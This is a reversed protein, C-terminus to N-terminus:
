IGTQKKRERDIRRQWASKWNVGPVGPAFLEDFIDVFLDAIRENRLIKKFAPNAQENSEIVFKFKAVTARTVKLIKCITNTDIDKMLLYIIAIRKAIMMRETRSLLDRIVEEFNRRNQRKGVVEFFLSFIKQYVRADLKRRSIQVM